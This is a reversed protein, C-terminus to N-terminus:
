KYKLKFEISLPGLTYTSSKAKAVLDVKRGYLHIKKSLQYIEQYPVEGISGSPGPQIGKKISEIHVQSLLQKIEGEIKEPALTGDIERHAITEDQEFVLENKYFKILIPIKEGFVVNRTALFKVIVDNQISKLVQVAEAFNQQDVEILAGDAKVGFSRYNEEAIELLNNLTTEAQAGGKVTAQIISESVRFLIMGQRTKQIEQNLKTKTAQLNKIEARSQDLKEQIADSQKVKEELEDKASELSSKIQNLEKTIQRVQNSKEKIENRLEELGFLATKADQSIVVVSSLTFLAILIGSIITFLIATHRPRLKFISLRKRGISRGLLDGVYAITGSIIILLLVIKIGFNFM